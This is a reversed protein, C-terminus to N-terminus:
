SARRAALRLRWPNLKASGQWRDASILAVGGLAPVVGAWQLACGNAWSFDAAHPTGPVM